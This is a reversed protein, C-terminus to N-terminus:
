RLLALWAGGVSIGILLVVLARRWWDPSDTPDDLEPDLSDDPDNEAHQTGDRFRSWETVVVSLFVGHGPTEKYLQPFGTLM